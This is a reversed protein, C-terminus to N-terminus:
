EKREKKRRYSERRERKIKERYEPDNAYRERVRRNKREKYTPDADRKRNEERQRERYEPDNAYRERQRQIRKEKQSVIYNSNIEELRELLQEYQGAEALNMLEEFESETIFEILNGQTIAQSLSKSASIEKAELRSIGFIEILFRQFNYNQDSKLIGWAKKMPDSM